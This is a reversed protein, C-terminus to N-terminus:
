AGRHTAFISGSDADLIGARRLLSARSFAEDYAHEPDRRVMEDILHAETGVLIRWRDAKVGDLIVTAGQAASTPADAVFRRARETHRAQIEEDSLASADKGMSALRTRIQAANLGKADTNTHVKLSNHRIGTGIHGPMVVSVKIHPANM